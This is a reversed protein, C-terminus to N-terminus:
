GNRKTLDDIKLSYRAENKTGLARLLSRLANVTEGKKGILRGIDSHYAWAKILIGKEDMTDELELQDPFECLPRLVALVYEKAVETKSSEM